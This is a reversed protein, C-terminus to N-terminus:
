EAGVIEDVERFHDGEVTNRHDRSDPERGAAQRMEGGFTAAGTTLPEGFFRVTM